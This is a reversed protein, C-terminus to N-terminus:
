IYLKAPINIFSGFLTAFLAMFIYESPIGIKTFALAILNIQVVVFFFLVSFFFIIIFLFTLPNFFM